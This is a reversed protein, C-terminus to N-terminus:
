ILHHPHVMLTRIFHGQELLHGGGEKETEEVM